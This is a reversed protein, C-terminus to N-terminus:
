NVRTKEIHEVVGAVDPVTVAAASKLDDVANAVACGNFARIMDIDNFNDGVTYINEKPVGFREACALIGTAKTIGAPPIDVTTVNRLPNFQGVFKRGVTEALERAQEISTCGVNVQNFYPIDEPRVRGELDGLLVFEDTSACGIFSVDGVSMICDLLPRLSDVDGLNEFILRGDPFAAASGNMSIVFDLYDKYSAAVNNVADIHCRGTVIGFVGGESRFRTVAELSRATVGVGHESFTGDFDSGIMYGDFKGM